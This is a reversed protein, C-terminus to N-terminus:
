AFGLFLALARNVATMDEASLRGIFPGAKSRPLTAAKEVMVQSTQRLGNEDSMEVAVRCGETSLINSTLPLVTVSNLHEYIDSQIVLAPRPKGYDGPLSVSILDGQKM